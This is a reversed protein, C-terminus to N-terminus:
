GMTLTNKIFVGNEADKSVCFAGLRCGVGKMSDPPAIRSQKLLQTLAKTQVFVTLVRLFAWLIGRFFPVIRHM